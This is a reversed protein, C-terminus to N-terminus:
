AGHGIEKCYPCQNKQLRQKGGKTTGKGGRSDDALQQLHCDREEPSDATTALLIRDLDPTQKSSAAAM